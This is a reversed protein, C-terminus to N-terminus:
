NGGITVTQGGSANTVEQYGIERVTIDKTMVRNRTPLVQSNMLPEIEYSGDYAPYGGGAYVRGEITAEARVEGTIDPVNM